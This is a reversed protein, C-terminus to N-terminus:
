GATYAPSPNLGAQSDKAGPLIQGTGVHGGFTAPTPKSTDYPSAPNTILTVCFCKAVGDSGKILKVSLGINTRHKLAGRLVCSTNTVTPDLPASLMQSILDFASQLDQRATLNFVTMSCIEQKTYNAIQCFLKNCDIFAGGMSAIAMGITCSNFVHRYDTEEITNPLSRSGSASSPTEDATPESPQHYMMASKPPVGGFNGLSWVGNQAAVHRVASAAQQGLAGSGIKQVQQVLQHRDSFPIDLFAFMRFLCYPM